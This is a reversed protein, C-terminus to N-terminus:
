TARLARPSPATCGSASANLWRAVGLLSVVRLAALAALSVSWSDPEPVAVLREGFVELPTDAFPNSLDELELAYGESYEISIHERYPHDARIEVIPDIYAEAGGADNWGNGFNAVPSAGAQATLAMRYLNNPYVYAEFPLSSGPGLTPNSLLGGSLEFLEAAEDSVGTHEFHLGESDKRVWFEFGGPGGFGQFTANVAASAFGTAEVGWLMRFTVPIPTTFAEIPAQPNVVFTMDYRANAWAEGDCNTWPRRNFDNPNEAYASRYGENDCAITTWASALVPIQGGRPTHLARQAMAGNAVSISGENWDGSAGWGGLVSQESTSSRDDLTGNEQAGPPFGHIDPAYWRTFTRLELVGQASGEIPLLSALALSSM